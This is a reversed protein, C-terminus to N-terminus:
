PEVAAQRYALGFGFPFLPDYEPDGVNIPVQDASRPWSHPLKGAPAAEGFLVDAVGAGESGPLWAAVLAQWHQLQDTVVLPRGSVLVTVTPVDSAALREVVDLDDEDLCLEDPAPRDGFLEAYPREGLVAIAVDYGEAGAGDPAYDVLTSPGAVQRIGELISTGPITVGSGGQWTLTWGGCQHGIDDANKGAVMIRLGDRALPLTDDDNKLLVISSQVARRALARHAASGIQEALARDAFANEFLGLEFKKRVIRAVADDIRAAAIVGSEVAERLVVRM